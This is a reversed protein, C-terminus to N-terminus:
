PELDEATSVQKAWIHTEGWGGGGLFFVERTVHCAFQVHIEVVFALNKM